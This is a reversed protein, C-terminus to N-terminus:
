QIDKNKRQGEKESTVLFSEVISLKRQVNELNRLFLRQAAQIKARTMGSTIKRIENYLSMLDNYCIQLDATITAPVIRRLNRVLQYLGQHLEELMRMAEQKPEQTADMSSLLKIQAKVNSLKSEVEDQLYMRAEGATTM